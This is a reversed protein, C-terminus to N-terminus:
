LSAIYYSSKKVAGSRKLITLIQSGSITYGKVAVKQAILKMEPNLDKYKLLQLAEKKRANIFEPRRILSMKTVSQTKM